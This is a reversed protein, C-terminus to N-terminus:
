SRKRGERWCNKEAAVQKESQMDAKAEHTAAREAAKEKAAREAAGQVAAAQKEAAQAVKGAAKVEAKQARSIKVKEGAAPSVSSEM